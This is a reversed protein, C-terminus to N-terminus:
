APIHWPPPEDQQVPVLDPARWKGDHSTLAAHLIQNHMHLQPDGDRSTHQYWSAVALDAERWEGTERGKVRGAHAGLRTHGAQAQFFELTARNAAYIMEDLAAIEGAWFAEAESDGDEYARRANEGLSAHFLSISKSLSFTFNFYPPSQRAERAAEDRLERKRQATAHPEAQLLHSYIAEAARDAALRRRGLRTGDLPHVRQGFVLDYPKREIEQGKRFGLAQAGPGWWRGPPEGGEAAGIYYAGAQRRDAASGVQAWAYEISFGKHLTGVGAVTAERGRVRGVILRYQV